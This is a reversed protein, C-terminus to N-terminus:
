GASRHCRVSTVLPALVHGRVLLQGLRELLGARVQARDRHAQEPRVRLGLVRHLVGPQARAAGVAALDRVEAAPQGRGRAALRPPDRLAVAAGHRDGVLVELRPDGRLARGLVGGDLVVLGSGIGGTAGALAVGLDVNGQTRARQELPVADTLLATGAM